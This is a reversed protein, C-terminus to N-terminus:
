SVGDNEPIPFHVPHAHPNFLTYADKMLVRLEPPHAPMGPWGLSVLRDYYMKLRDTCWLKPTTLTSNGMVTEECMFLYTDLTDAVKVLSGMWNVSTPPVGKAPSPIDGKEAEEHDHLLAKELCLLRAGGPITDGPTEGGSIDEELHSLGLYDFLWMVLIAVNYSHEAVSQTRLMPLVSFRNIERLRRANRFVLSNYRM